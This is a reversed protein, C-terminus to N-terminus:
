GTGASGEEDLVAALAAPFSDWEVGMRNRTASASAMGVPRSWRVQGQGTAPGSPAYVTLQVHQGVRGAFRCQVRIGLTSLDEALARVGGPDVRVLMKVPRRAARRKAGASGESGALVSDRPVPTGRAQATVEADRLKKQLLAILATPDPRIGSCGLREYRALSRASTLARRLHLVRDRPSELCREWVLSERIRDREAEVGACLEDECSRCLGGQRIRTLMGSRGCATCKAM